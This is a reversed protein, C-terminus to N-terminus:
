GKKVANVNINKSFDEISISGDGFAARSIAGTDLADYEIAKEVIQELSSFSVDMMRKYDSGVKTLPTYMEKQESQDDAFSTRGDPEGFSCSIIMALSIVSVIGNYIQKRM